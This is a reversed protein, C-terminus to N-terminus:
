EVGEEEISPEFALENMKKTGCEDCLFVHKEGDEPIWELYPKQCTLCERTRRAAPNRRIEMFHAIEEQQLAELRRRTQELEVQDTQYIAGDDDEM